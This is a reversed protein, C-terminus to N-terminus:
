QRSGYENRIEELLKDINYRYNVRLKTQEVINYQIKNNDLDNLNFSKKDIMDILRLFEGIQLFITENNKRFWILFGACIYHYKGIEQLGCIQHYHIDGKEDTTREFSISNGAKTKLELAYFIRGTSDFGFYDCPNKRSFRLNSSPSFSQAQDPLRYCWFYEPVSAQFNKEFAKGIDM